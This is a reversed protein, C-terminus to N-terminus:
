SYKSWATELRKIRANEAVRLLAQDREWGARTKEDVTEWCSSISELFSAMHARLGGLAIHVAPASPDDLALARNCTVLSAIQEQVPRPWRHICATRFIFGAIAAFVHLDEITRFPRIYDRYGDGPLVDGDSVSVNHFAVTGHSIEPVFPLGAMPVIEIGPANRDVLVMRIMNKGDSSTGTSAAVMLLESENAMTIFKKSGRLLWGQEHSREARSLATKISSPHGGKDETVCFSVVACEPLAPHLRRLATEYGAAFAYAARDALFGGIVARDIPADWGSTEADFRSKWDAVSALETTEIRDQRSLLWDLIAHSSQGKMIPYRL